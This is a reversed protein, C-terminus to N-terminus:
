GAAVKAYVARKVQVHQLVGRLALFLLFSLWLAHAGWEPRLLYYVTFFVATAGLMANRMANSASAGIFIGDWLFASFGALPVALVWYFYPQAAAVVEKNKMIFGLLENGWLAYLLTFLLSLAVGWGLLKRVVDKLLPLSKAGVYRGVLAEGAYAFGDMIYSFLTFLQLLLANVALQTDGMGASAATFFTFVCVLCFTRIFINGNVKFFDLMARLRLVNKVVLKPLLKRYCALFFILATLVGSYQALLTGLAVGEIKMGLGMVFFMSFAINLVNITIAIYMPIRSNQMGIFWGKFAYMGLIAPAGWILIGFYTAAHDKVGESADIVQTALSYLPRQLVLILLAVALAVSLARALTLMADSLDRRGYAQATFGSTGMRLFGFNWYILNFISGGVAVAGIYQKDGMQGVIFMDVLGLLPVTINSIINPLALNLIKKNM